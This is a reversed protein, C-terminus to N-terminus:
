FEQFHALFRKTSGNRGFDNNPNRGLDTDGTGSSSSKGNVLCSNMLLTECFLPSEARSAPLATSANMSDTVSVSFAPSVTLKVPNPLNEGECRAARWPTLGRVPSRTCIAAVVTGFNEAPLWSLAASLLQRLGARGTGSPPALRGGGNEHGSQSSRGGRGNGNPAIATAVSVNASRRAASTSRLRDCITTPSSGFGSRRGTSSRPSTARKQQPIMSATAGCATATLGCSANKSASPVTPNAANSFTQAWARRAPSSTMASPLRPSM